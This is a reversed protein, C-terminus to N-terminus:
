APAACRASEIDRADSVAGKLPRVHQYADVGVLLARVQGEDPGRLLLSQAGASAPAAAVLAALLLKRFRTPITM